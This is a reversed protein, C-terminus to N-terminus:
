TTTSQLTKDGSFAGKLPTPSPYIRARFKADFNQVAFLM